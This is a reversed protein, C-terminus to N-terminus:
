QSVTVPRLRLLIPYDPVGLSQLVLHGNVRATAPTSTEGTMLDTLEVTFKGPAVAFEIDAARINLDNIREASWVAFVPLGDGDTFPYSMIRKLPPLAKSGHWNRPKDIGILGSDDTRDSFPTVKIQIDNGPTFGITTRAVSQVAHYAPKLVDGQRVLGFNQEPDLTGSDGRSARGYNDLFTYLINVEVGLALGEVLRRQSYCAQTLESVGPYISKWGKKGERYTSWGSETLWIQSPGNHKQSHERYMRIWSAFTGEADAVNFGVRNRYTRNGPHPLIEPAPVHFNYPHDTIGDVSRSVGMALQRYNQPTINGLGIVAMRPNAAKIADAATNLLTVYKALWPSESGDPELGTWNVPGDGTFAKAYSGFPENLIEIAHIKGNLERALWAAAKAYANPDWPDEYHPTNNGFATNGNFSVIVKLGHANALNIWKLTNESVRYQSRVPETDLWTIEDRIWGVGLAAIMPIHKEADWPKMWRTKHSFHTAVGFKYNLPPHGPASAIAASSIATALSSAVFTFAFLCHLATKTM